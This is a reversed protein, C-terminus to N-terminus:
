KKIIKSFLEDIIKLENSIITRVKKRLDGVSKKDVDEISKLWKLVKGNCELGLDSLQKHLQDSENFKPIPAVDFIKKHVNPHNKQSKKRLPGLLDDIISSNLCACLYYAERVDDTEYYYFASEVIFGNISVGFLHTAQRLIGDTDVVCAVSVRQFNPYIVKYKKLPNQTTLKKQYDIWEFISANNKTKKSRLKFWNFDAQKIWEALKFCGKENASDIDVIQYGNNTPEIPLVIMQINRYAFPIVDDGLLTCYLFPSEINGRIEIDKYDRVPGSKSPTFTIVPPCNLDFGLPSQNLKVFWFSRPVITAGQKFRSRYYSVINETNGRGSAWFSRKGRIHLYYSTKAVKLQKEAEPLGANKCELNGQLIIGDVPYNMTFDKSKKAMVVCSPVNFLPTVNECDWIEEWFLNDQYDDKLKFICRRLGDHQDAYFISKPFVFAIVGGSKLYLDATRVLFLAAMELHTVLESRGSLLEYEHLIQKKLFDQYPQNLFRLAIWPPNGVVCDFKNRWFLPKFINKLMYAWISDREANLFEMLTRSLEYLSEVISQDNVHPFKRASLLNKFSEMSLSGNNQKNKEAFERALNVAQDYDYIHQLLTEPIKVKCNELQVCYYTSEREVDSEPLLITDALYVPIAVNGASRKKLLEGLAMIYNTKAIMVALPHVDAGIVSKLIHNLTDSSNKLRECKEQIALYLFTGSGCSPDFMDCRPNDDLIKKIIKHALWDPTYYEGLDHRTEPDVLEQYLTKLVDGSARTLDYNMLLSFIQNAIKVTMNRAEKRILWAFFDEEIFNEIGQNKFFQGSLIEYIHDASNTLSAHESLRMWAMLKALTALYTHRIFLEDGTVKNGYVISLYKEWNEYIVKYMSHCKLKNWLALLNNNIVHFAHSQVGFDKKFNVSDPHLRCQRFFYRDLFFYIEAPNLDNWNVRENLNLEINDPTIDGAPELLSPSYTYFREGDTAICIYPTREDSHEQLWLIALYKRLQEKAQSLKKPINSEFEIIINGYLNDVEGKLVHDKEKVKIFSEIGGVYSEIFTSKYGFLEQLLLTFMMSRATEKHCNNINSLYTKIKDSIDFGFKSHGPHVNKTFPEKNKM